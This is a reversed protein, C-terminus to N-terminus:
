EFTVQSAIAQAARKRKEAQAAQTMGLQNHEGGALINAESRRALMEASRLRWAQLAKGWNQDYDMSEKRVTTVHTSAGDLRSLDNM